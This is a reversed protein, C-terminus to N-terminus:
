CETLGAREHVLRTFEVSEEGARTVGEVVRRTGRGQGGM